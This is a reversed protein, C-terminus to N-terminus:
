GRDTTLTVEGSSPFSLCSQSEGQELEKKGLPRARCIVRINGKLEQV